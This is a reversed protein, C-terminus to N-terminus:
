ISEARLGSARDPDQMFPGKRTGATPRMVKKSNKAFPRAKLREASM